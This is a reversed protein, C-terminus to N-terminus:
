CHIAWPRNLSCWYWFVSSSIFLFSIQVLDPRFVLKSMRKEKAEELLTTVTPLREYHFQGWATWSICLTSVSDSNLNNWLDRATSNNFICVSSSLSPILFPHSNPFFISDRKFAYILSKFYVKSSSFWM